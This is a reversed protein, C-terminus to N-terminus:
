KTLAQNRTITKSHKVLFPGFYDVATSAFPKNYILLREEPLNAMIQVKPKLNVRKCYLCKSLIKRIIACCAPIWHKNRLLCLAYERGIHM